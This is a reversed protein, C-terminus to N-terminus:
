TYQMHLWAKAGVGNLPEFIHAVVHLDYFVADHEAAILGNIFIGLASRVDAGCFHTLVAL